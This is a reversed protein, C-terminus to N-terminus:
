RGRERALRRRRRERLAAFEEGIPADAECAAELAAAPVGSWLDAITATGERGARRAEIDTTM